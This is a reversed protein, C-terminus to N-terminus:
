ARSAPHAPHRSTAARLESSERGGRRKTTYPLVFLYVGTLILLGLPPLPSHTVLSPPQQGNGIALAVFNALLTVTFVVSV